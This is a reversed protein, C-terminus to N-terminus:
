ALPLWKKGLYLFLGSKFSAKINELIQLDLEAGPVFCTMVLRLTFEVSSVM